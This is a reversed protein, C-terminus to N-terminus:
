HSHISGDLTGGFVGPFLLSIDFEGKIKLNMGKLKTTGEFDEDTAFLKLTPFPEPGVPVLFGNGTIKSKIKGIADPVMDGNTDLAVTGKLTGEFSGVDGFGGDFKVKSSHDTIVTGSAEPVPNGTTTEFCDLTGVLKQGSNKIV